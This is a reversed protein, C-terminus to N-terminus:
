GKVWVLGVSLHQEAQLEPQGDHGRWSGGGWKPQVRGLVAGRESLSGGEEGGGGGGQEGVARCARPEARRRHASKM